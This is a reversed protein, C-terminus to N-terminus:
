NTPPSIFCRFFKPRRPPRSSGSQHLEDVLQSARRSLGAADETVPSEGRGQQGQAQGRMGIDFIDLSQRISDAQSKATRKPTSHLRSASFFRRLPPCQKPWRSSRPWSPLSKKKPRSPPRWPCFLAACLKLTRSYFSFRM